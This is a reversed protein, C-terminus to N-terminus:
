FDGDSFTSDNMQSNDVKPEPGTDKRPIPVYHHTLTVPFLTKISELYGLAEETSDDADSLEKGDVKFAVWPNRKFRYVPKDRGPASAKMYIIGDPDRGVTLITQLEKEGIVREGDKFKSGYCGIDFSTPEVTSTVREFARIYRHFDTPGMRAKIPMNIMAREKGMVMMTKEKEKPNNTFITLCPNNNEIDWQWEAKNKWDGEFWPDSFLKMKYSAYPTQGYRQQPKEM